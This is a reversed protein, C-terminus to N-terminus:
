PIQFVLGVFGPVARGLAAEMVSGANTMQKADQTEHSLPRSEAPRKVRHWAERCPVTEVVCFRM